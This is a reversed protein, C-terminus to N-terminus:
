TATVETGRCHCPTRPMSPECHGSFPPFIDHSIITKMMKIWQFHLHQHSFYSFDDIFPPFFLFDWTFSTKISLIMQLHHIRPNYHHYLPYIGLFRTTYHFKGTWNPKSIRPKKCVPPVDSTPSQVVKPIHGYLLWPFHGQGHFEITVIQRSDVTMCSRHNSSLLSSITVGSQWWWHWLSHLNKM